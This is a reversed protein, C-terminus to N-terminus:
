MDPYLRYINDKDQKGEEFYWILGDRLMHGFLEADDGQKYQGSRHLIWAKNFWVSSELSAMELKYERGPHLDRERRYILIAKNFKHNAKKFWLNGGLSPRAAALLEEPFPVIKM